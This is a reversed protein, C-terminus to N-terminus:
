IKVNYIEFANRSLEERFKPHAIDILSRMRERVTRGSLAAIGYDPYSEGGYVACGALILLLAALIPWYSIKKDM